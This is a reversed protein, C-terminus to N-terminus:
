TVWEKKLEYNFWQLFGDKSELLALNNTDHLLRWVTCSMAQTNGYGKSPNHFVDSYYDYSLLTHKHQDTLAKCYYWDALGPITFANPVNHLADELSCDLYPVQVFIPSLMKGCYVNSASTVDLVKPIGCKGAEEAIRKIYTHKAEKDFGLEWDITVVLQAVAGGRTTGFVSRNVM